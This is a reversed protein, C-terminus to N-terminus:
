TAASTNAAPRPQAPALSSLARKLRAKVSEGELADCTRALARARELSCGLHRLWPVVSRDPDNEIADREQKAEVARERRTKMFREGPM